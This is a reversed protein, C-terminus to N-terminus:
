KFQGRWASFKKDFDVGPTSLRNEEHPDKELDYYHPGKEVVSHITRYPGLKGPYTLIAKENGHICWEYLLSKSPDKLDAIDHAYIEGFLTPRQLPESGTCHPLLDVGQLEEPVSLGVAKLVTPVMDISSVLTKRDMGPRIKAPWKVMVPTRLGGDFPSQKSKPAFQTFWGEPLRTDPTRQIWGNDTVYVVLTDEELKRNKLEGLLEGCTEDFWECMAYYKALALHGTKAQYKDLLRKPPNHPTHPLFPAYWIFFPQDRAEDLFRSIPEMGKRGIKLGEDGHRGGRAPDGHTMGHTFGGRQHNGEWWKGCQFSLYGKEKLLRPLTPVRDVNSILQKCLDRYEPRGRYKRRDVGEPVGPDNGTVLHQRPYLGSIMTMLSPRCLSTPVYGRTFTFSERALRDLHPTEIVPHGMFGYDTWTQDDSIMFVVNPTARRRENGSPNLAAATKFSRGSQSDQIANSVAETDSLRNM